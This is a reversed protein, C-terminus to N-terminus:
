NNQFEKANSQRLSKKEEKSQKMQQNISKFPKLTNQSQYSSNNELIKDQNRTPINSQL